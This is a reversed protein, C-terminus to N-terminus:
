ADTSLGLRRLAATRREHPLTISITKDRSTEGRVIRIANRPCEVIEALFAVLAANARGGEPPAAVKIKLAPGRMGALATKPANPIVRVEVTFLLPDVPAPPPAGQNGGSAHRRRKM